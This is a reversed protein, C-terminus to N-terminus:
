TSGTRRSGLCCPSAPPSSSARARGDRRRRRPLGAAAVLWPPRGTTSLRPSSSWTPGRRPGRDGPVCCARPGVLAALLSRSTCRREGARSTLRLFGLGVGLFSGLLVFNSLLLRPPRHQRRALPDPGARPLAHARERPRPSASPGSVLMQGGTASPMKEPTVATVRSSSLSSRGNRGIGVRPPRGRVRSPAATTSSIPDAPRDAHDLPRTRPRLVVHGHCADGYASTFCPPSRLTLIVRTAAVGPAPAGSSRPSCRDARFSVAPAACSFALASLLHRASAYGTLPQPDSPRRTSTWSTTTPRRRSRGSPRCGPLVQRAFFRAAAVKGRYFARGQRRAPALADLAM